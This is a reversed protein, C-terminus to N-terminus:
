LISFRMFCLVYSKLVAGRGGDQLAQPGNGPEQVITVFIYFSIQALPGTTLACVAVATVADFAQAM